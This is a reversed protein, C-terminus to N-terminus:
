SKTMKLRCITRPEIVLAARPIMKYCNVSSTDPDFSLALLLFSETEKILLGVSHTVDLTDPLSDVESWENVASSDWWVAHIVDLETM